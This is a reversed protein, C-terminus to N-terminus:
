VFLGSWTSLCFSHGLVLATKEQRTLQKIAYERAMAESRSLHPEIYIYFVPRRSRTYRAGQGSRHAALRRCLDPTYGTYYTGDACVLIYTYFLPAISSLDSANM